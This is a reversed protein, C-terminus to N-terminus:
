GKQAKRGLKKKQLDHGILMGIKEVLAESGLPADPESTNISSALGGVGGKEHAGDPFGGALWFDM